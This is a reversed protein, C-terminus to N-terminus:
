EICRRVPHRRRADDCFLCFTSFVMLPVRQAQGRHALSIVPYSGSDREVPMSGFQDRGFWCGYRSPSYSPTGESM